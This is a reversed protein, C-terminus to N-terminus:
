SSFFARMREAGKEISDTDTAYSLRLFGPAGFAVGPVVAVAQQELLKMAVDSCDTQDGVLRPFLYFAGESKVAELAPISSLQDFLLDRRNRFTERMSDVVSRDMNLAHIAGAQAFTVANSTVQDQINAMQDTLAPPACAFGIRWGTMAFSKSCGLITVTRQAVEKGLAAMSQHEGDYILREYIEDSLIWLDSKLALAAVQKMLERDWVAGTPNTPSNIIIAKTKATIAQKIQDITPRFGNELTASVVIPEAGCLRVQDIYTPWYPAIVIVEDGPGVLAMLANYLCQKAGCSVTIMDPTASISNERLLKAVIAERLATMGRASTYKTLGQDLASKAADIIEEPTNFDPEGAAFSVVDTGEARM